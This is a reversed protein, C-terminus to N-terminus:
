ADRWFGMHPSFSEICGEEDRGRNESKAEFDGVKIGVMDRDKADGKSYMSSIAKEELRRM